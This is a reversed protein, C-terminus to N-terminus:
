SVVHAGPALGRGNSEMTGAGAIIGALHTGHGWEDRGTGNPDLMDVRASVQGRLEPVVTVGSDLLAVGIGKGTVGHKAPGVGGTWAQDAGVAVDTVAMQGRMVHDGSLQPVDADSAVEDLRGAPVDLVAGSALVRQVKLGHRAAIGAVQEATGSVIVTTATADGSDLHRQLDDSLHARKGQADAGSVATCLVAASTLALRATARLMRRTASAATHGAEALRTQRQPCFIAM